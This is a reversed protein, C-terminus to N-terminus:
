LRKKFANSKGILDSNNPIFFNDFYSYNEGVLQLQPDRIHSVVKPLHFNLNSVESLLRSIVPSCM